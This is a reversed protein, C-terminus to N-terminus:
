RYESGLTPNQIPLSKTTELVRGADRFKSLAQIGEVTLSETGLEAYVCGNCALQDIENETWIDPRTQIGFLLNHSRIVPMVERAHSKPLGFTEDILFIYGVGCQRLRAIEQRITPLPKLRLSRRFDARFCYGCDFSCGRATEILGYSCEAALLEAKAVPLWTHPESRAIAASLYVLPEERFPLEPGIMGLNGPKALYPCGPGSGLAVVAEVLASDLEGRYALDAGTLRLASQPEANRPPGRADCHRSPLNGSRRLM